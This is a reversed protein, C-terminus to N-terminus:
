GGVIFNHLQGGMEHPSDEQIFHLGKVAVEQQNALTRCYERQRGTLISGPEANIFLKPISSTELWKAYRDVFANMDAPEGEIPIERPWTLTPRRVEGEEQFPQRYVSMEEDTLGRLVSAPLIREVFFNRELILEEGKPSRMGQFVGRAAEPSEGWSVPCVM